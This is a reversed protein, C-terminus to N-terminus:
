DVESTAGVPTRGSPQSTGSLVPTPLDVVGTATKKCADHCHGDTSCCLSCIAGTHFPCMAMDIRDYSGGCAVCEV